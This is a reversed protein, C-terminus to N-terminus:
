EKDDVTERRQKKSERILWTKVMEEVIRQKTRGKKDKSVIENLRKGDDFDLTLFMKLPKDEVPDYIHPYREPCNKEVWAEVTEPDVRCVIDDFRGLIQPSVDVFDLSLDLDGKRHEIVVFFANARTRYFAIGDKQAVCYSKDLYIAKGYSRRNREM